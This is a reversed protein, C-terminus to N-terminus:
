KNSNYFTTIWESIWWEPLENCCTEMVGISWGEVGGGGGKGGSNYLFRVFIDLDPIKYKCKGKM